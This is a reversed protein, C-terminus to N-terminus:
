AGTLQKSVSGRSFDGNRSIAANHRHYAQSYDISILQCRAPSITILAMYLLKAQDITIPNSLFVRWQAWSTATIGHLYQENRLMAGNRSQKNPNLEIRANAQGLLSLVLKVADLTGKKRHYDVSNRLCNRRQEDSECLQWIPDNTLNLNQALFPLYDSPCAEVLMPMLTQTSHSVCADFANALATLNPNNAISPALNTLAM